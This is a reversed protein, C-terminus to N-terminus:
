WLSQHISTLKCMFPSASIVMESVVQVMFTSSSTQALSGRLFLTDWIFSAAMFLSVVNPLNPTSLFIFHVTIVYEHDCMKHVELM